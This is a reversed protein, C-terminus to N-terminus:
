PGPRGEDDCRPSVPSGLQAVEDQILQLTYRMSTPKISGNANRFPAALLSVALLSTVIVATVGGSFLVQGLAREEPDAYLLVFAVVAVAAIILMVWLLAPIGNSAALLRQRRANDRASTQSFWQQYAVNKRLTSIDAAPVERELVEVWGDTVASRDGHKMAPWEQGVVSRAYCVLEGQIRVRRPEPNFLASVQFQEFVATAENEADEKAGRYGEFTLLIVFGLLIAFGAGLFGFVSSARDSDKFHGGAPAVRRHLLMLGAIAGASAVIVLAALWPSV